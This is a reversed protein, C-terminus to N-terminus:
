PRDALPTLHYVDRCSACAFLSGGSGSGQEIAQILRATNTFARHWACWAYIGSTDTDESSPHM